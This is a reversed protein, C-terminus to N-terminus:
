GRKEEEILAELADLREEWYRHVGQVWAEPLALQEPRLSCQRTRGERRREILGARELVNLHKTVAPQSINFESAIASVSRDRRALLTVIQRRRPNALAGFVRDLVGSRM